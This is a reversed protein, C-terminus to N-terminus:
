HNELQNGCLLGAASAGSDLPAPLLRGWRRESSELSLVTAFWVYVAYHVMSPGVFLSYAVASMLGSCGLRPRNEAMGNALFTRKGGNGSLIM